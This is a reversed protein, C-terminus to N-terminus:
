TLLEGFTLTAYSPCKISYREPEFGRRLKKKHASRTLVTPAKHKRPLLSLAAKSTEVWAKFELFRTMPTHLSWLCSHPLTAGLGPWHCCFCRQPCPPLRGTHRHLSELLTNIKQMLINSSCIFILASCPKLPRTNPLYSSLINEWRPHIRSPPCYNFTFQM